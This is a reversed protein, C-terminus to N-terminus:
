FWKALLSDSKKQFDRANDHYPHNPDNLIKHLISQVTEPEGGRWYSLVSNWEATQAFINSSSAVEDFLDAAQTFEGVQYYANAEWFKADHYQNSEPSIREFLEIASQFNGETYQQIADFYNGSQNNSRLHPINVDAFYQRSIAPDSYGMRGYVLFTFVALLAIGAAMMWQRNIGLIRGNKRSSKEVPSEEDQYQALKATLADIQIATVGKEFEDFFQDDNETLNDKEEQIETLRETLNESALANFGQFLRHYFDYSLQHSESKLLTEFAEKEQKNLKNKYAKEYLDIHKADLNM